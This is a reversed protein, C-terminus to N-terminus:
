IRSRTSSHELAGPIDNAKLASYAQNLDCEKDNFFYLAKQEQWPVLNSTVRGSSQLLFIRGPSSREYIIELFGADLTNALELFPGRVRDTM